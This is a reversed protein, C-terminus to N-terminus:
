SVSWPYPVGLKDEAEGGVAPLYIVGKGRGWLPKTPCRPQPLETAGDSCPKFPRLMGKDDAM